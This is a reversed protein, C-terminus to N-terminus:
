LVLDSRNKVFDDPSPEHLSARRCHASTVVIALGILAYEIWTGVKVGGIDRGELARDLQHLSVIRVAAYGGLASLALLAPLHRRRRGAVYAVVFPATMACLALVGVAAAQLLRRGDYWGQSYAGSRGIRTAVEGLDALRGFAALVGCAAASLWLAPWRDAAVAQHRERNGAVAATAAVTVYGAGVLWRSDMWEGMRLM